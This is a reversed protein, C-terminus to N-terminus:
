ISRYEKAYVVDVLNQSFANMKLNRGPRIMKFIPHFYPLCCPTVKPDVEFCENQSRLLILLSKKTHTTSGGDWSLHRLEKNLSLYLPLVFSLFSLYHHVTLV